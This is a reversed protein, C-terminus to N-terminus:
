QNLRKRKGERVLLFNDEELYELVHFSWMRHRTHELSIDSRTLSNNRHERTHMGDKDSPILSLLELDGDHCWCLDKSSLVKCSLFRPEYLPSDSRIEENTGDCWPHLFIGARSELGSIGIDYESGM